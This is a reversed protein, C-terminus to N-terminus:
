PAPDSGREMELAYQDLTAAIVTPFPLPRRGIRPVATRRTPVALGDVTTFADWGHSGRMFWGAVEAVYDNRRLLGESDFLFTQARCHVPAGAPFEVQVGRLRERNWSGTVPALFTLGPLIFPVATYSAFAYGFFYYADLPSWRRLKRLGRFTRRHDRSEAPLRGLHPQLVQVDGREFVGLCDGAFDERFEVRWRKPFIRLMPSLRFTRGSGKLCPLLGHVGSVRLKVADLRSWLSWGGHREIAQAVLARASAPWSPDFEPSAGHV